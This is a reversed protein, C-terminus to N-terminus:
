QPSRQPLCPALPALPAPFPMQNRPCWGGAREAENETPFPGFVEFLGFSLALAAGQWACTVGPGEAKRGVAM